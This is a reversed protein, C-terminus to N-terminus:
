PKPSAFVFYAWKEACNKQGMEVKKAKKNVEDFRNEKTKFSTIKM